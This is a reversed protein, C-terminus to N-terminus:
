DAPGLRLKKIKSLAFEKDEVKFQQISFRKFDRAGKQSLAAQMYNLCRGNGTGSGYTTFLVIHKDKVGKCQELYANIAPAPGFAWVPSGLCLWDFTSLDLDVPEIKAQRHRFARLCQNFFHVSEDHAKLEIIRVEGLSGLYESLLAAVKKTHGSLSYYVIASKM